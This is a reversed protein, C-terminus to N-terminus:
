AAAAAAKEVAANRIVTPVADPGIVLRMSSLAYQACGASNGIGFRRFSAACAPNACKSLM